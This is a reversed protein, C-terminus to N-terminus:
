AESVGADDFTAMQGLVAAAAQVLPIALVGGSGEGLRLGLDVLPSLGLADLAITAAPETSRHGAICHAAVGPVLSEAVMAAALTIVGDLLVPVRAAAGGIIFGALAAIELGGIDAVRAMADAGRMRAIADAVIETKRALTVDDIGTGRGTCADASRGTLSGILAASATTNGIGMEGTVLLDAGEAVLEHAVTLGVTIAARAEDLSMAPGVSLDATGARVAHRRLTPTSRASAGPIPTAVGVDIVIVRAGVSNALVNVAAGGAAFNAVMQATVEQPWPTVGALAVGHDAAFVAVVPQTPVPPPCVGAIASLQEGLDELRGLAGPPKTLRGQRTRAAAAASSDLPDLPPLVRAAQGVNAHDFL